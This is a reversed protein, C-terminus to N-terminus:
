DAIEISSINLNHPTELAGGKQESAEIHLLTKVWILTSPANTDIKIIDELFKDAAHFARSLSPNIFKQNGRVRM